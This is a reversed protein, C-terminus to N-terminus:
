EMCLFKSNRRVTCPLGVVFAIVPSKCTVWCTVAVHVPIAQSLIVLPTQNNPRVDSAFVRSTTSAWHKIHPGVTGFPHCLSPLPCGSIVLTVHVRSM